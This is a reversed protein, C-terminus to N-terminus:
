KSAVVGFLVFRNGTLAFEAAAGAALKMTYSYAVNNAKNGNVTEVQTGNVTLEGSKAYGEASTFKSDTATFYITITIEEATTNTITASAGNGGPVLAQVFTKGDAAKAGYGSKTATFKKAGATVKFWTGVYGDANADIAAGEALDDATFAETSVTAVTLEIVKAEVGEATFKAYVTGDAAFAATADAFATECATDSYLAVNVTTELKVSTNDDYITEVYAKNQFVTSGTAINTGIKDTNIATSKVAYYEVGYTDEVGKYTVVVTYVVDTASSADFADVAYGNKALHVTYESAELTKTLGDSDTAVVTLGAAAFVDSGYFKLVTEESTTVNVNTITANPNTVTIDYSKTLETGNIAVTVTYTGPTTIETVPTTDGKKTVTIAYASSELVNAVGYNNISKVTLGQPAAFNFVTDGTTTFETDTVDIEMSKNEEVTDADVSYDLVFGYINIGNYSSTIRYKEGAKIDFVSESLKGEEDLSLVQQYANGQSDTLIFARNDGAKQGSGLITLKGDRVSTINVGSKSSNVQVRYAYEVGNHTKATSNGNSDTVQLKAKSGDITVTVDDNSFLPVVVDDQYTVNETANCLSIPYTKQYKYQEKQVTIQYTKQAGQYEIVVTYTGATSLTTGEVVNDSSDKLTITYDTIEVVDDEYIANVILGDSSFTDGVNFMTKHTSSAAYNIGLLEPAATTPTTTPATTPAVTPATTPVTPATTPAVTPATTPAVTPTTTPAVTPTTTPAVTPTTTPAVTPTTTPATTKSSSPQNVCSTAAFVALTLISGLLLKRKKM